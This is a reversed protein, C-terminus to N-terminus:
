PLIDAVRTTLALEGRDIRQLVAAATLTKTVSFLCFVDDTRSPRGSARDAFGLAEHLAVEGDRAVIVVAGDYRERAIDNKIAATLRELGKPDFGLENAHVTNM